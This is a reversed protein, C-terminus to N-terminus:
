AAQTRTGVAAAAATAASQRICRSGATAESRDRRPQESALDRRSCRCSGAAGQGLQRHRAARAPSRVRDSLQSRGRGAARGACACLRADAPRRRPGRHERSRVPAAILWQAQAALTAQAQPTLVYFDRGFRVTDSGAKATLDAQLVPDRPGTGADPIRAQRYPPQQDIAPVAPFARGRPTCFPENPPVGGTLTLDPIAPGALAEASRREPRGYLHHCPRYRASHTSFWSSGTLRGTRGSTGQWGNTVM